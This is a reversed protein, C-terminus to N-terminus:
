PAQHKPEIFTKSPLRGGKSIESKLKFIPQETLDDTVTVKKKKKPEQVVVHIREAMTAERGM